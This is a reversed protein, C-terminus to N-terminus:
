EVIKLQFPPSTKSDNMKNPVTTYKFDFKYHYNMLKGDKSVPVLAEWRNTLLQTQRMIYENTGVVVKPTLTDYRISRQNSRWEAEVLYLGADNRPQQHSTLNVISSSTCATLGLALLSFTLAKTTFGM